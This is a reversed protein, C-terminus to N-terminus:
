NFRNKFVSIFKFYLKNFIFGILISIVSTLIFIIFYKNFYSLNINLKNYFAFLNDIVLVHYLYAIYSQSGIFFIISSFLKNNFLYKSFHLLLLIQSISLLYTRVAITAFFLLNIKNLGARESVSISIYMSYIFSLIFLVIIYKIIKSLNLKSYNTGVIGGLLLYSSYYIPNITAKTTIITELVGFKSANQFIAYIFIGYLFIIFFAFKYEFNNLLKFIYSWIPMTLFFITLTQIYWTHYSINCSLLIKIFEPMFINISKYNAFIISFILYPLLIVIFKKKLFNIYNFSHYDKIFFLFGTIFFFTPVAFKCACFIISIYISYSYSIDEKSYSGLIHQLVICIFSIVRLFELEKIIQM